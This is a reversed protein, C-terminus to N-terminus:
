VTNKAGLLCKQKQQSREAPTCACLDSSFVLFLDLNRFYQPKVERVDTNNATYTGNFERVKKQKM